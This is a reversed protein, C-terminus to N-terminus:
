GKLAQAVAEELTMEKGSAWAAAFAEERLAIRAAEATRDHTAREAAYARVTELLRYRGADAEAVVLSRDVLRALLGAV